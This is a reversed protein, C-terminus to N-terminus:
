LKRKLSRFGPAGIASRFEDSVREAHVRFRSKEFAKQAAENGALITIRALKCGRAVGEQIAERLLADVFGRRRYEPLTAVFEISWDEGAEPIFCPLAPALGGGPLM